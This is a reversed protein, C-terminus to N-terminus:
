ARPENLPFTLERTFHMTAMQLGFYKIEQGVWIAMESRGPQNGPNRFYFVGIQNEANRVCKVVKREGYKKGKSNVLLIFNDARHESFKSYNLSFSFRLALSQAIGKLFLM